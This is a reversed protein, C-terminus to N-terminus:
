FEVDQLFFYLNVTGFLVNSAGASLSLVDRCLELCLFIVYDKVINCIHYLTSGM